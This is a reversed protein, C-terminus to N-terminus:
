PSNPPKRHRLGLGFVVGLLQTVAVVMSALAGIVAVYLSSLVTSAHIRSDLTWIDEVNGAFEDLLEVCSTIRLAQSHMVAQPTLQDGIVIRHGNYECSFRTVARDYFMFVVIASILLVAVTCLWAVHHEKASWRVGAVIIIAVVAAAIVAATGKATGNDAAATPPPWLYPIALLIFSAFQTIRLWNQKAITLTRALPTRTTV